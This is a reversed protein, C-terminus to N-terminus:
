RHLVGALKAGTLAPATRADAPRAGDSAGPLAFICLAAIPAALLSPSRRRLANPM